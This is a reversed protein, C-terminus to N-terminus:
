KASSSGYNEFNLFWDTEPTGRSIGAGKDDLMEVLNLTGTPPNTGPWYYNGNQTWALGFTLPVDVYNMLPVDKNNLSPREIIWEVSNGVLSTKKPATLAYKASKHTTENNFFAYGKTPSTNWVQVWIMDGPNVALGVPQSGNPWWETWAQYDGTCSGEGGSVKADVGAQLVDGSGWGDIGPWISAYYGAYCGEGFVKHVTPVVFEAIISATSFPNGSDDIVSGSWNNSTANAISDHELEEGVVPRPNKAPGHYIGTPALVRAAPDQPSSVARQWRRYAEPAIAPDPAPPIAYKARAEPSATLPDFGAPPPPVVSVGSVVSQANAITTTALLCGVFSIVRAVRYAVRDKAMIM